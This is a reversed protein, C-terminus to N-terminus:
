NLSNNIINWVFDDYSSYQNNSNNWSDQITGDYYIDWYRNIYKELTQYDNNDTAISTDLIGKMLDDIFLTFEPYTQKFESYKNWITKLKSYSSSDYDISSVVKSSQYCREAIDTYKSPIIFCNNDFELIYCKDTTIYYPQAVKLLELFNKDTAYLQKGDNQNVNYYYM